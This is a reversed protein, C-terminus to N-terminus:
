SLLNLNKMIYLHSLNTLPKRENQKRENEEMKNRSSQVRAISSRACTIPAVGPDLDAGSRFKVIEHTHLYNLDAKSHL